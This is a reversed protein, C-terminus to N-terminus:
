DREGATRLLSTLGTAGAFAEPEPLAPEPSETPSPADSAAVPEDSRLRGALATSPAEPFPRSSTSM